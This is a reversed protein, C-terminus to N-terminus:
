QICVINNNRGLAKFNNSLISYFEIDSVPKSYFYGQIAHCDINKLWYYQKHTNVGEAIVKLKLDMAFKILFKTVDENETGIADIFKKDIKIKSAKLSVINDINAYGAGFDDLILCTGADSIRRVMNQMHGNDDFMRSETFEINILDRHVNYKKLLRSLVEDFNGHRMQMLSVNVSIPIKIKWESVQRICKELIKEGLPVILYTEEAITIIDFTSVAENRIRFLAEVGCIKDEQINYQPQYMIVINSDDDIADRITNELLKLRNLQGYQTREWFRFKNKGAKKAAGLAVEANSIVEMMDVNDNPYSSIGINCTYNVTHIGIHMPEKLCQKIDLAIKELHDPHTLTVLLFDNMETRCLFDVDRKIMKLRSAVDLLLTNYQRRFDVSDDDSEFNFSIVLIGLNQDTVQAISVYNHLVSSTYSKDPLGTIHDHTAVAVRPRWMNVNSFMSVYFQGSDTSIVSTDLYQTYVTGNKARNNIIISFHGEKDLTTKLSEYFDNTHLGSRLISPSKGIIEACTYGTITTFQKNVYIIKENSDCVMVANPSDLIIHEIISNESLTQFHM